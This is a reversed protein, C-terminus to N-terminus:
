IMSCGTLPTYVYPNCVIDTHLEHIVYKSSQSTNLDIGLKCEVETKSLIYWRMEKPPYYSFLKKYQEKYFTCELEHLPNWQERVMFLRTPSYNMRSDKVAQIKYKFCLTTPNSYERSKSTMITAFNYSKTM